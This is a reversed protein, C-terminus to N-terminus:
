DASEDEQKAKHEHWLKEAITDAEKLAETGEVYSLEGFGSVSYGILQAFQVSEDQSIGPLMAIQNLDFPGADLLWRVIGNERFRIHGEEDIDIPQLPMLKAGKEAMDREYIDRSLTALLRMVTDHPLPGHMTARMLDKVEADSMPNMHPPLDKPLNMGNEGSASIRGTQAGNSRIEESMKDYDAAAKAVAPDTRELEALEAELRPADAYIEEIVEDNLMAPRLPPPAPPREDFQFTDNRGHKAPIAPEFKDDTM